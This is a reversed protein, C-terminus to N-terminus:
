VKYSGRSYRGSTQSGVLQGAQAGLTQTPPTDTGGDLVTEPLPIFECGMHHAKNNFTNVCTPLTLDCGPYITFTDGVSPEVPFPLRVVIAGSANLYSGVTASFGDNAGSTFTIVGLEFYHDVQTLNTHFHAGDTVTTVAGSVTKSAKLTQAPDCGLDYVTHQCGTSYVFKPMQQNSLYALYDDVGIKASLRGAQVDEATGEFWAVAGPSTDYTWRGISPSLPLMFIKSMLVTAGDILGYRCAQLFPYGSFKIPANFADAQPSITLDMRGAETGVKQTIVGRKITLGTQYFNKTTSPYIAAYLPIQFNTFRYTVGTVLTIDYLEAKVYQGGSLIATTASSANRM